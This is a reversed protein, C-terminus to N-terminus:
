KQKLDFCHSTILITLSGILLTTEKQALFNQNEISKLITRHFCRIHAYNCFGGKVFSCKLPTINFYPHKKTRRVFVHFFM